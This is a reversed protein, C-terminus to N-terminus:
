RGRIHALGMHKTEHCAPCLAIVFPPQGKGPQALVDLVQIQGLFFPFFGCEISGDRLMVVVLLPFMVSEFSTGAPAMSSVSSSELSMLIRMDTTLALVPLGMPTISHVQPCTSIAANM